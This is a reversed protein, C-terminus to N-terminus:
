KAKQSRNCQEDRQPCSKGKMEKLEKTSLRVFPTDTRMLKRRDGLLTGVEDARLTLEDAGERTTAEPFSDSFNLKQIKLPRTGHRLHGVDVARRNDGRCFGRPGDMIGIRSREYLGSVISQMPSDGDKQQNALMKLANILNDCLGLSAAHAKFVKAENANAGLQVVLIRNPARGEYQGGCAACWWDCHKKKRNNGDGHGTSVWWSCGGFSFCICHLCVHSLTVGEM